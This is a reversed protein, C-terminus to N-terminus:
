KERSKISTQRHNFKTQSFNNPDHSSRRTQIRPSILRSTQIANSAGNRFLNQQKFPLKRSKNHNSIVRALTCFYRRHISKSIVRFNQSTLGINQVYKNCLHFLYHFFFRRFTLFFEFRFRQAQLEYTLFAWANRIKIM